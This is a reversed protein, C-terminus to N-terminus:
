NIEYVVAKTYLAFYHPCEFESEASDMHNKPEHNRGIELNKVVTRNERELM